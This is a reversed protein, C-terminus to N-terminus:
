RPPSKAKKKPTERERKVAALYAGNAAEALANGDEWFPVLLISATDGSGNRILNSWCQGALAYARAAGEYTLAVAGEDGSEKQISDKSIAIETSLSSILQGFDRFTPGIEISGHVAKSARYSAAFVEPRVHTVAIFAFWEPTYTKELSALASREVSCSGQADAPSITFLALAAAAVELLRTFRNM